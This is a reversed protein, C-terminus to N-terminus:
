PHISVLKFLETATLDPNRILQLLEENLPAVLFNDLNYGGIFIVKRDDIDDSTQIFDINVGELFDLLEVIRAPEVSPGINLIAHIPRCDEPSSSGFTDELPIESSEFRDLIKEAEPLRDNLYIRYGLWRRPKMLVM